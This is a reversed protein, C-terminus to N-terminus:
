DWLIARKPAITLFEDLGQAQWPLVREGIKWPGGSAVPEGNASRITVEENLMDEQVQWSTESDQYSITHLLMHRYNLESKSKPKHETLVAKFPDTPEPLLEKTHEISQQLRAGAFDAAFAALSEFSSAPVVKVVVGARLNNLPQRLGYTRKRAYVTLQLEAADSPDTWELVAPKPGSIVDKGEVPGARLVRIGVYCGGRQITVTGMAPIATPLGNWEGQSVIVQDMQARPGLVGRLWATLRNGRGILDFDVTIMGVNKVQMSTVYSPRPNAFFYATPLEPLGALTVLLPISTESPQGTMTGLSFRDELYTDTRVIYAGKRAETSLQFPLQRRVGALLDAPPAYDPAVFFMAFQTVQSPAPGGLDVYILYPSYQGGYLYDGPQAYLAAGALAGSEPQIRGALDYYMLMLADQLQQSRMQAGAAQWIWKLAALRYSDSAPSHGDRLGKDLTNDLWNAVQKLSEAIQQDAGLARGLMALSAARLLGTVDDESPAPKCRVAALALELGSRLKTQLEPPLKESHALYIQALVPSAFYTAQLTGAQEQGALWPFQGQRASGPQTDQAALVVKLVQQAQTVNTDSECAALIYGPSETAVSPRGAQDLVLGTAEDIEAKCEDSSSLWGVLNGYREDRQNAQATSMGTLLCVVLVLRGISCNSLWAM